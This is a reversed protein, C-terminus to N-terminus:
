QELWGLILFFFVMEYTAEYYFSLILLNIKGITELEFRIIALIITV